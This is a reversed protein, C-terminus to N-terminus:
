FEILQATRTNLRLPLQLWISNKCDTWCFTTHFLVKELWIFTANSKQRIPFKSRNSWDSGNKSKTGRAVKFDPSEDIFLALFEGSDETNKMDHLFVGSTEYQIDKMLTHLQTKETHQKQVTKSNWSKNSTEWGNQKNTKRKGWRGTQGHTNHTLIKKNWKRKRRRRIEDSRVKRLQGRRAKYLQWM